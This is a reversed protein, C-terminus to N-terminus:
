YRISNGKSQALASESQINLADWIPETHKGNGARPKQQEKALIERGM